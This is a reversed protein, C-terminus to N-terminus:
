PKVAVLSKFSVNNELLTIVDHMTDNVSRDVTNLILDPNLPEEYAQDIGTFGLCILVNERSFYM